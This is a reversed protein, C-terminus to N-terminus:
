QWTNRIPNAASRNGYAAITRRSGLLVQVFHFNHQKKTYPSLSSVVWFKHTYLLFRNVWTKMYLANFRRRAVWIYYICDWCKRFCHKPENALGDDFLNGPLVFSSVCITFFLNTDWSTTTTTNHPSDCM